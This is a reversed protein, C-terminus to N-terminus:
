PHNPIILTKHTHPHPPLLFIVFFCVLSLKLETPFLTAMDKEKSCILAPLFRGLTKLLQWRGRQSIFIVWPGAPLSLSFGLLRFLPRLAMNAAGSSLPLSSAHPRKVATEQDRTWNASTVLFSLRCSLTSTGQKDDKLRNLQQHSAKSYFNIAAVSVCIVLSCYLSSFLPILLSPHTHHPPLILNEKALTMGLVRTIQM